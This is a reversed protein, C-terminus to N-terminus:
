PKQMPIPPITGVVSQQIVQADNIMINNDKTVDASEAPYGALAITGVVHQMIMQADAVDINGDNNVDGLRQFIEIDLTYYATSGLDDTVTLNVTYNGPVTYYHTPNQLTSTIGDGFDWYYTYPPIGGSASGSFQLSNYTVETGTYLFFAQLNLINFTGDIDIASIPQPNGATGDFLSVTTIDLTSTDGPSGVSSLTVDAFKITGTPGPSSGTAATMTVTGVSNDINSTVTGIDMGAVSDVTVVSADYSLTITASGVGDSDDTYIYITTTTTGGSPVSADNIWVTPSTYEANAVGGFAAIDLVSKEDGADTASIVVTAVVLSAIIAGFVKRAEMKKNM